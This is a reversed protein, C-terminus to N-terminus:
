PKREDLKTVVRVARYGRRYLKRWARRVEMKDANAWPILHRVGPEEADVKVKKMNWCIYQIAELRTSFVESVAFHTATRSSWFVPRAIVWGQQPELIM